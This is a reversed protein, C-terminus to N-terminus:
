WSPLPLVQAPRPRRGVHSFSASSRPRVRSSKLTGLLPRRRALHNIDSLKKRSTEPEAQFGLNGWTTPPRGGLVKYALGTVQVVGSNFQTLCYFSLQRVSICLREQFQM